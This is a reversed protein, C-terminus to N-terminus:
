TVSGGCIKAIGALIARGKDAWMRVDWLKGRMPAGHYNLDKGALHKREGRRAWASGNPALMLEGYYQYRAYPQNYLVGDEEIVRTNKLIGSQMPTYPDMHRACENVLTQQVLGNKGLGYKKMLAGANINSIIHVNM